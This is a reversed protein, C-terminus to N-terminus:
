RSIAAIEEFHTIIMEEGLLSDLKARLDRMHLTTNHHDLATQDKYKEIFTFQKPDDKARLLIYIVAGEENQVHSVMEIFAQELEQEKGQKATLTATFVIM